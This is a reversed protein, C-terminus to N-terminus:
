RGAKMRIVRSGGKERVELRVPADREVEPAAVVVEGRGGPEIPAEMHVAWGGGGKLVVGAPSVRVVESSFWPRAGEPNRVDLVILRGRAVRYDWNREVRVGTGVADGEFRGTSFGLRRMMEMVPFSSAPGDERRPGVSELEPATRSSRPRLEVDVRSDVEAPHSVLRFVLRAHVPSQGLLVELKVEESAALERLSELQVSRAAVEMRVFREAGTGKLEARVVEADFRVLSLVGPAMRLELESGASRESLVLQQERRVRAV